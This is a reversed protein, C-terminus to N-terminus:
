ITSSKGTIFDKMRNTFLLARKYQDYTNNEYRLSIDRSEIRQALDDFGYFFLETGNKRFDGLILHLLKENYSYNTHQITIAVRGLEFGAHNCFMMRHRKIRESPRTTMGIKLASRCELIYVYGAYDVYPCSREISETDNADFMRLQPTKKEYVAIIKENLAISNELAEIDADIAKREASVEDLLKTTMM